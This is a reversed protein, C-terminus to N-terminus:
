IFLLVFSCALHGETARVQVEQSFASESAWLSPEEGAKPSDTEPPGRQVHERTSVLVQEYGQLTGPEPGQITTIRSQFSHPDQTVEEQWSSQAAEQPHPARSGQTRHNLVPSLHGPLSFPCSNVQLRLESINGGKGLSRPKHLICGTTDELGSPQSVSQSM